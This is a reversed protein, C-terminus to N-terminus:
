LARVAGFDGAACRRIGPSQLRAHRGGRTPVPNDPDYLYSVAGEGPTSALTGGTCANAQDLDSLYWTQSSSTSPWDKRFVWENQGIVYLKVGPTDYEGTSGSHAWPGIIYRSESRTALRQWDDFQPGFFM